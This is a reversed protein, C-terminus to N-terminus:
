FSTFVKPRIEEFRALMRQTQVKQHEEVQQQSVVIEEGVQAKKAVTGIKMDASGDLLLASMRDGRCEVALRGNLNSFSLKSKNQFSIQWKQSSGETDLMVLGQDLALNYTDDTKVHSFAAESGKELMVSTRAELTFSAASNKAAFWDKWSAKETVGAKAESQDRKLWLDGAPDLVFVPALLKVDAPPTERPDKTIVPAPPVVPTPTPTSETVTPLPAKKVVEEPPAPPTPKPQEKPTPTVLVPDVPFLPLTEDPRVPVVPKPAEVNSTKPTVAVPAELKQVNAVDIKHPTPAPSRPFLSFGVAVALVAAAAAAMPIVRRRRSAAVVKSLLIENVSGSEPPAELTSALAVARRCDDCAALHSAMRSRDQASLTGELWGALTLTDPCPKEMTNM